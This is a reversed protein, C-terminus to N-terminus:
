SSRTASCRCASQYYAKVEDSAFEVDPDLWADMRADFRQDPTLKNWNEAFM